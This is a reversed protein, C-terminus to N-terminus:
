GDGRNAGQGASGEHGLAHYGCKPSLRPRHARGDEVEVPDDRVALGQVERGQAVGQGLLAHGDVLVLVVAEVQGVVIPAGQAQGQLLVALGCVGGADLAQRRRLARTNSASSGLTGKKGPTGARTRPRAASTGTAM